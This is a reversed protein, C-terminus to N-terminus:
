EKTEEKEGEDTSTESEVEAQAKAKAKLKLRNSRGRERCINCSKFREGLRNEKYEHIFRRLRCTGCKIIEITKKGEDEM